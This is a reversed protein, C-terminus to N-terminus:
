ESHAVLKLKYDEIVGLERDYEIDTAILYYVGDPVAELNVIPLSYPELSLEEFLSYGKSKRKLERLKIQQVWEGKRTMYTSTDKRVVTINEM